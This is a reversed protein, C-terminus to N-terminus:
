KVTVHYVAVASPGRFRYTKISFIDPGHYGPKSKYEILMGDAPSKNCKERPNGKRYAPYGKADRIAISGNEPMQMSETETWSLRTCNEDLLFVHDVKTPQGSIATVNVVGRSGTSTPAMTTSYIVSSIVTSLIWDM